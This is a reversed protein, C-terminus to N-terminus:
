KEAISGSDDIFYCGTDIGAALFLLDMTEKIWSGTAGDFEGLPGDWLPGELAPRDIPHINHYDRGREVGLRYGEVNHFGVHALVRGDYGVERLFKAFLRLYDHAYSAVSVSAIVRNQEPDDFRLAPELTTGFEMLGDPWVQVLYSPAVDDRPPLQAYFGDVTAQLYFHRLPEEQNWREPVEIKQLQAAKIETPNVLNRQLPYPMLVASLWGPGRPDGGDELYQALEVPRLGRHVRELVSAPLDEPENPVITGGQEAFTELALRRFRDRYAEEVEAATMRAVLLNRRVHYRGDHSM